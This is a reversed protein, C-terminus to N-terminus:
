VDCFWAVNSLYGANSVSGYSAYEVRSGTSSVWYAYQWKSGGISNSGKRITRAGYNPIYANFTIQYEGYAQTSVSSDGSCAKSGLSQSGASAVGANTLVLGATLIASANLARVSSKMNDERISQEVFYRM